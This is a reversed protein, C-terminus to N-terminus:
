LDASSGAAVMVPPMPWVVPFEGPLPETTTFSVVAWTVSVPANGLWVKVIAGHGVHAGDPFMVVSACPLPLASTVSRWGPLLKSPLAM